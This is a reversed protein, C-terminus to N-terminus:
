LRWVNLVARYSTPSDPGRIPPFYEDASLKSIVESHPSLQFYPLELSIFPPLVFAGGPMTSDPLKDLKACCDKQKTECESCCDAKKEKKELLCVRVPMASMPLVLAFCILLLTAFIKKV